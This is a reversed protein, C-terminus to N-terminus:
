HCKIYSQEILYFKSVETLQFFTISRLCNIFSKKSSTLSLTEHCDYENCKFSCNKRCVMLKVM